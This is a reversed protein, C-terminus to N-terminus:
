MNLSICVSFNEKQVTFIGIRVADRDRGDRDWDRGGVTGRGWGDEVTGLRKQYNEASFLSNESCYFYHSHLM